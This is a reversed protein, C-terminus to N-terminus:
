IVLEGTPLVDLADGVISDAPREVRVRRGITALSARYREALSAPLADYADLVDALVDAPDHDAGLCAAGDPAWRVNLGLGVVVFAQDGSGGAQALIGALKRDDVLVDNPWKLTANVGARRAAELAALGVRKTADAGDVNRLLISMLLNSGPPADWTRDLRGRGATQHGAVLVSRHAQGAAAAAILDSNTSGTEAVVTVNWTPPIPRTPPM